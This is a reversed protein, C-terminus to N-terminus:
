TKYRPRQMKEDISGDVQYKPFLFRMHQNKSFNAFLLVCSVLFLDIVNYWRVLSFFTYTSFPATYHAHHLVDPAPIKPPCKKPTRLALVPVVPFSVLLFLTIRFPVISNKTAAPTSNIFFFSLLIQLLRCKMRFYRPPLARTTLLDVDIAICNSYAIVNEEEIGRM